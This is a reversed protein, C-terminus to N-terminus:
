NGRRECDIILKDRRKRIGNITDYRITVVIIGQQKGVPQTWALMDSLLFIDTMELM